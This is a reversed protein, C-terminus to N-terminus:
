LPCHWGMFQLDVPSVWWSMLSLGFSRDLPVHLRSLFLASFNNDFCLKDSAFCFM